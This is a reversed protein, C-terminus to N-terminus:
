KRMADFASLCIAMANPVTEVSLLIEHGTLEGILTSTGGAILGTINGFEEENIVEALGLNKVIAAAQGASCRVILEAVAQANIPHNSAFLQEFIQDGIQMGLGVLSMLFDGEM